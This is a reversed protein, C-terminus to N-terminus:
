INNNLFDSITKDLTGGEKYLFGKRKLDSFSKIFEPSLKRMGNVQQATVKSNQTKIFDAIM